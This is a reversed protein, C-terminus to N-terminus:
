RIDDSTVHIASEFRDGRCHSGYQQFPTPCFLAKDGAGDWDAWCSALFNPQSWVYAVRERDLAARGLILSRSMKASLLLHQSATRTSAAPTYRGHPLFCRLSPVVLPHSPSRLPPRPPVRSAPLRDIAAADPSSATPVPSRLTDARISAAVGPVASGPFRTLPLLASTNKPWYLHGRM